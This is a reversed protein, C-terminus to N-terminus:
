NLEQCLASTTETYSVVLIPTTTKQKSPQNMPQKKKVKQTRNQM